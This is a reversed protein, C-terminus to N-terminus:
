WAHQVAGDEACTLGVMRHEEIEDRGFGEKDGEAAGAGEATGRRVGRRRRRWWWWWPFDSPVDDHNSLSDRVNPAFIYQSGGLLRALQSSSHYVGATAATYHAAYRRSIHKPLSPCQLSAFSAPTQLHSTSTM